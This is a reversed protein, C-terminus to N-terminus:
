GPGFLGKNAGSSLPMVWEPAGDSEGSVMRRFGSAPRKHAHHALPGRLLVSGATSSTM